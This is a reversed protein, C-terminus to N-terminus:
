VALTANKFVFIWNDPNEEYGSPEGDWNVWILPTGSYM